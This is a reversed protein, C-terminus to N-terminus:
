KTVVVHLCLVLSICCVVVGSFFFSVVHGCAFVCGGAGVGSRGGWRKREVESKRAGGWGLAGM